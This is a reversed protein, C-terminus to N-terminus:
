LWANLTLGAVWAMRLFPFWCADGFREAGRPVRIGEDVYTFEVLHPSENLTQLYDSIARYREERHKVGFKFVKLAFAVGGRELRFVAAAAGTRPMPQRSYDLEPVSQQMEPIRFCKRPHQLADRYEQVSPYAISVPRMIGEPRDILPQAPFVRSGRIVSM